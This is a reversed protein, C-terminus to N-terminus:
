YNTSPPRISQLVQDLVPNQEPDSVRYVETYIETVVQALMEVIAGHDFGVPQLVLDVEREQLGGGAPQRYDCPAVFAGWEDRYRPWLPNGDGLETIVFGIDSHWLATAEQRFTRLLAARMSTYIGTRRHSQLVGAYGVMGANLRTLFMGFMAGVIRDAETACILTPQLGKTTGMSTLFSDLTEVEAVGMAECLVTHAAEVM